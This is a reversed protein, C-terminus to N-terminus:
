KKLLLSILSRRGLGVQNATFLNVLAVQVPTSHCVRYLIKMASEAHEPLPQGFQVFRIWLHILLEFCIFKNSEILM